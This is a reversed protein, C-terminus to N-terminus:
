LDNPIKLLAAIREVDYVCGAWPGGSADQLLAWLRTAAPLEPDPALDPRPARSALILAGQDAGFVEAGHGVLNISGQLRNRDIVIEIIDGDILRGLPGGALAEPAVHGICAGTSVGSFRADTILAVNKGFELYKLACTLQFTEEMGSGLPGRGALVLIDGSQIAGNKVAEIAATELTFVRAPGRKRYVGDKDVVSPDIATSKVVSGEPALNGVPFCVTSTLGRQRAVDPSMIIEGSPVRKRLEARRESQEWWNLVEDLTLGSVTKVRTDLLGARRLHLMVEPVGGALFVEVTAFSQPGNPLADVIRPVARNVREWDDRTPRSLGAEFAVAPLHLILNTSGGFAAHVVLANEISAATLIDRMPTRTEILTNLARASRRAMDRWIPLGSPSLAAHPLTM